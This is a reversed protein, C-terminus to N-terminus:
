PRLRAVAAESLPWRLVVLSRAPLTIAPGSAQYPKPSLLDPRDFTNESALSPGSLVVGRGIGAPIGRLPVARESNRGNVLKIVLEKAELDVGVTAALTPPPTERLSEIEEGDLTGILRGGRFDLRVRYWRGEEIAADQGRSIRSRDREFAHATNGWGGLNWHICRDAAEFGALAIFGERGSTKRASFEFTWEDDADSAVGDIVAYLNDRLDTQRLVGDAVQWAGRRDDLDDLSPLAAEYAVEGNITVRVDKFEAATGWTKFGFKGAVPPPADLAATLTHKVVVDVRNQAFVQQVWYSPTGYSRSNDFVIANPNWQRYHVNEFLPAYSALAVIDANREMGTMFAAESLAGALSGRGTGQTVAYEGVYVRQSARDYADYRDKNQWFWQPSNYYHESTLDGPVPTPVNSITIIEPYKAKIAAQILAFREYYPPAGGFAWSYGNENGIEIYKLRFPAPHGNAARLAGMPSTIPGNAYEIADLADNVYRDMQAMPQIETHSMGCNIVFMPEANLYECLQLYEHYGLGNSSSYGWFTKPTPTRKQIPGLSTRWDFKNALDNGEVYCGGPFRLFGPRMEELREVLDPRFGNERNKYTAQPMVSAYGLSVDADPMARVVFAAQADVLPILAARHERWEETAHFTVARAPAAGDGGEFGVTVRGSGKLWLRVVVAKGRHLPIGQFGANRVWSEAALHLSGPNVTGLRESTSFTVGDSATWGSPLGEETRTLARNELMEAYIGGEGARNIEEFFIGFLSRSVRVTPRALDISLGDSPAPQLLALAALCLM